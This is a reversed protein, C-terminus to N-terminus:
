RIKMIKLCVYDGKCSTNTGWGTASLQGAGGVQMGWM